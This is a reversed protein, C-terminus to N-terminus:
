FVEYLILKENEFIVKEASQASHLIKIFTGCSGSKSFDKVAEKVGIM